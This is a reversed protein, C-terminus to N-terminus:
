FVLEYLKFDMIAWGRWIGVNSLPWTWFENYDFLNFASYGEKYTM